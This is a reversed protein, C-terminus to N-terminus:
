VLWTYTFWQPYLHHVSCLTLDLRDWAPHSFWGRKLYLKRLLPKNRHLTSVVEPSGQDWLSTSQQLIHAQKSSDAALFSNWIWVLTWSHFGPQEPTFLNTCSHIECERWCKKLIKRWVTALHVTINVGGTSILQHCHKWCRKISNIASALAAILVSCGMLGKQKTSRTATSPSFKLTSAYVKHKANLGQIDGSSGLYHPFTDTSSFFLTKAM